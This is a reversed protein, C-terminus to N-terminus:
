PALYESEEKFKTELQNKREHTYQPTSGFGFDLQNSSGDKQRLFLFFKAEEATNWCISVPNRFLEKEKSQVFRLANEDLQEDIFDRLKPGPYAQWLSLRRIARVLNGKPSPNPRLNIDLIRNSVREMYGDIYILQKNKLEYVVADWDFFTCAIVDELRQVPVHRRGWTTELAWFDIKWPGVKCGYGGFRNPTAYLDKAIVSVDKEPGDIVLDLDSRFASRGGLAFDRVLGGIIAVRDFKFFHKELIAQLNQMEGSSNSWFYRDLRRKLAAYNPASTM